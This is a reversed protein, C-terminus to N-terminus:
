VPTRTPPQPLRASEREQVLRREMFDVREELEAMRTGLEAQLQAHDERLAEVIRDVEARPRARARIWLWFGSMATGAVLLFAIVGKVFAINSPDM